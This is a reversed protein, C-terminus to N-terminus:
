GRNSAIINLTQAGTVNTTCLIKVFSLGAIAQLANGTIAVTRSAGGITVAALVGGADYVDTYTGDAKSAAQFTINGGNYGAPIEIAFFVNRSMDQYEASAKTGNAITWAM